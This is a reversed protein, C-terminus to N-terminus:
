HKIILRRSLLAGATQVVAIYAGSQLASTDIAIDYVGTTDATFEAEKAAVGHATYLRLAIPERARAIMRLIVEEDAPNPYGALLLLADASPSASLAIRVDCGTSVIRPPSSGAASLAIPIATCLHAIDITDTYLRNADPAFIIQIVRSEQPPVVVPFQSLPASFSVNSHFYAGTIEMPLLGANYVEVGSYQGAPPPTPPLVYAMQVARLTRGQITDALHLENGAEDIALIEVIGDNDPDVLSATYRIMLPFGGSDISIVANHTREVRVSQLGWDTPLQEAITGKHQLSCTDVIATFQPQATDHVAEVAFTVTTRATCVNSIVLTDRFMGAESSQFCVRVFKREGPNVRLPMSTALSYRTGPLAASVTHTTTGYNRLEIDFCLERNIRTTAEISTGGTAVVAADVTFGYLVIDKETRLRASDQVIIRLSGDRYVDALHAGFAAVPPFTDSISPLEVEVNVRLSEPAEVSRIGSDATASDHVIGAVVCEATAALEPPTLDKPILAARMGGTYGYSDAEGYGYVYLGFGTGAEASHVGDSLPLQAYMWQTGPVPQFMDTAVSSGDLRFSSIHSQPIVITAYQEQFVIPKFFPPEPISLEVQPNIFRYSALFQEEPPILMMFPDGSKGAAEMDARSTKKYQAVLVPSTAEIRLPQLLAQEYYNGAALVATAAGNIVVHTSDYFALIRVLDNGSSTQNHAAPYPIALARYGWAEVPPLQEILYDRTRLESSQEIPITARQHGSFVAVPSSTTIKTGTLDTLLQGRSIEAQVLYCEGAQLVFRQEAMGNEWTPQAPAIEVETNDETAVIAFQSPTSFGDLVPGNARGNSNYSLVAYHRGLADVPLVLFADSSKYSRSMAYVTVDADTTVRFSQLAVQENQENFSPIVGSNNFGELEFQMAPVAFTYMAAPDAVSFTHIWSQGYRNRYSIEGTTPKSAAVFIYLSDRNDFLADHYNPPFTFRFDRGQSDPQAAVPQCFAFWLLVVLVTYGGAANRLSSPLPYSQRPKM